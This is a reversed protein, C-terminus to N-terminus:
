ECQGRRQRQLHQQRLLAATQKAASHSVARVREPPAVTNLFAAMSRVSPYALMEAVRVERGFAQSLQACAEVMALSRGGAEFFNCELGAQDLKLVTQWIAAVQQEAATRPPQYIEAILAHQPAHLAPLDDLHRAPNDVFIQLTARYNELLETVQAPHWLSSKYRAIVKLQAATERLSIFLDFNAIGEDIDHAKIRIAGMKTPPPPVNQLAVMLRSLMTDPLNLASALHQLPVDQHQHAANVEANVRALLEQVSPNGRLDGRLIVLNNFFGILGRTEPLDRGAVPSLLVIDTQRTYRYLLALWATLLVTFLSSGQSPGFNQKLQTLLDTPLDLYATAGQYSPPAHAISHPLQAPTATRLHNRWYDLQANFITTQQRQYAAFDAYQIPLPPLDADHDLILAQYYTVLDRWFISDSWRDYIAHHATRLLVYEDDALYLLSLRLLPAASLDFAEQAAERALRQVEAEQQLPSLARLDMTTLVQAPVATIVQVPQGEHLRFCTRLSEHRAFLARVSREFTAVDLNGHLYFIGRLNHAIGTLHAQEVQWLRQQAFSLPLTRGERVLCPIAQAQRQRSVNARIRQWFTDPPTTTQSMAFKTHLFPHTLM